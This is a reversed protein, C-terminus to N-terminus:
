EAACLIHVKSNIGSHIHTFAHKQRDYAWKKKQQNLKKVIFPFTTPKNVVNANMKNTLMVM